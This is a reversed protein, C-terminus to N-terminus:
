AALAYAEHATERLTKAAQRASDLVHGIARHFNEAIVKFTVVFRVAPRGRVRLRDMGHHNKLQSHSGELGSRIKYAEKFAATEQEQRRQAVAVDERRFRLRRGRQTARTPCQDAHPCVSCHACDFFFNVLGPARSAETFLPAHGAPCHLVTRRDPSFEFAALSLYKGSPKVGSMPGILRIGDDGAEVLNKGSIYGTDAYTEEPRHGRAILDEHFAGPANMDSEHAGEVEVYDIIQFPNDPHCTEGLQVQHGKGKHGSFTADTDSPSQLSNSAVDEAKKVAVVVAPEPAETSPPVSQPSSATAQEETPRTDMPAVENAGAEAPAAESESETEAAPDGTEEEAGSERVAVCPRGEEDCVQGVVTCQEGFLRVMTQYSKIATVDAQGRFRDILYWLDRACQDLRHRAQSSKADAFYGERELYDAHFRKPLAEVAAEDLRGLGKLFTEITKVFLGLRRLVKMNSLLHTSDIRHRSTKVNWRKILRDILSAFLEKVSRGDLLLYRFNYLTKPCVHAKHSPVELAYHWLPNFDFEECVQADTLDFMEKLILLGLMVAVPKNPAGHEAHYFRAFSKEEKVLMPLIERRFVGAWTGPMKAMKQPPLWVEVLAFGQQAVKAVHMLKDGSIFDLVRLLSSKAVAHDSGM